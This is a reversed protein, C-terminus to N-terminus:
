SYMLAAQQWSAEVLILCDILNGEGLNVNLNTQKLVVDRSSLAVM